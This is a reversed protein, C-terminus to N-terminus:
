ICEWVECIRATINGTVDVDGLLQWVSRHINRCLKMFNSSLFGIIKKIQSTTSNLTSKKLIDATAM